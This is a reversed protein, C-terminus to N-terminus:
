PGTKVWQAWLTHWEGMSRAVDPLGLALVGVATRAHLVLRPLAPGGDFRAQDALRLFYGVTPAVVSEPRLSLDQVAFAGAVSDRASLAPGALSVLYLGDTHAGPLRQLLRQAAAHDYHRLVSDPSPDRLARTLPLYNASARAREAPALRVEAADRAHRLYEAVALRARREEGPAPPNPLLLYTYLAFGPEEVRGPVLFASVRRLGGMHGGPPVVTVRAVCRGVEGRPGSAVVTAAVPGLPAGAPTWRVRAGGGAGGGVLRGREVTWRYEAAAPEAFARLEVTDQVTAAVRDAVCAVVASDPPQARGRAPAALAAVGCVAVGCVAVGCVAVGCAVRGRARAASM